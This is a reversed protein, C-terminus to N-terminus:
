AASRAPVVRVVDEVESRDLEFDAAIQDMKDGAYFRDLIDEIRVRSNGLIPQGFGRRMDIVVNTPEFAPLRLREAWLTEDYTIHRLYQRVAEVFVWQGSAPEVLHRIDEQLEKDGSAKAADWLIEAGASYLSKNALANPVGFEKELADLARRIKVIHAGQQKFSM